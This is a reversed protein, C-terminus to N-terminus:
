FSSLANMIIIFTIIVVLVIVLGIVGFSTRYSEATGSGFWDQLILAWGTACMIPSICCMVPEQIVILLLFGLFFLTFGLWGKNYNSGANSVVIKGQTKNHNSGTNRAVKKRLPKRRMLSELSNRDERKAAEYDIVPLKFQGKENSDSDNIESSKIIISAPKSLKDQSEEM